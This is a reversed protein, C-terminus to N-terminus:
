HTRFELVYSHLFLGVGAYGCPAIKDDIALIIFSQVIQQHLLCESLQSYAVTSEKITLPQSTLMVM